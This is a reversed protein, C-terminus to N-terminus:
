CNPLGATGDPTLEQTAQTFVIASVPKDGLHKRAFALAAM